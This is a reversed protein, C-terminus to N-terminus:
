IPPRDKALKMLPALERSSAEARPAEKASLIHDRRRSNVLVPPQLETGPAVATPQHRRAVAFSRDQDSSRGLLTGLEKGASTKPAM